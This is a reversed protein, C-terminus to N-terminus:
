RGEGGQRPLFAPVRHNAREGAFAPTWDWFLFRPSAESIPGTQAGAKAPSCLSRLM